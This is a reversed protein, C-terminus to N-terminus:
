AVSKRSDPSCYFFYAAELWDALLDGYENSTIPDVGAAFAALQLDLIQADLDRMRRAAESQSM